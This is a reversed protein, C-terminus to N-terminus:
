RHLEVAFRVTQQASHQLQQISEHVAAMLAKCRYPHCGKYSEGSLCTLEPVTSAPKGAEFGVM